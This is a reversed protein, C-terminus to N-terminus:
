LGTWKFISTIWDCQSLSSWIETLFKSLDAWLNKSTLFRHGKIKAPYAEEYSWAESRECKSHFCKFLCVYKHSDKSTKKQNVIRSRQFFERNPRKKQLRQILNKMLEQMSLARMRQSFWFFYGKTKLVVKQKKNLQNRYRRSVWFHERNPWM